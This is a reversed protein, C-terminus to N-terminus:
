VEVEVSGDTIRASYVPLPAPSGELPKGVLPLVPLGPCWEGVVEGSKLDFATKHAPCVICKDSVEASLLATKGQMSLGLHSCKNSVAYVEEGVMQVLVPKDGVEVVLRSKDAAKLEDVTCVKEFAARAAVRRVSAASRKPAARVRAGALSSSASPLALFPAM